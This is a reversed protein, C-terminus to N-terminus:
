TGTVDEIKPGFKRRPKRNESMKLRQEERLTLSWTEYGDLVKTNRLFAGRVFLTPCLM